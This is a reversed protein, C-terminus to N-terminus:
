LACTTSTTMNACPSGVGPQLLFSIPWQNNQCAADLEIAKGGKVPCTVSWVDAGGDEATMLLSAVSAGSGNDVTSTNTVDSSGIDYYNFTFVYCTSTKGGGDPSAGKKVTLTSINTTSDTENGIIVGNDYCTYVNATAPDVTQTCTDSPMCGIELNTLCSPLTCASAESGGEPALSDMNADGTAEAVADSGSEVVDPASSADRADAVAGDAGSPVSGDPGPPVPGEAGSPSNSSCSVVVAFVGLIWVARVNIM